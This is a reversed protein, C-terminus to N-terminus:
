SAPNAYSATIKLDDIFKVNEMFKEKSSGGALTVSPSFANRKGEPLKASHIVAGSFDPM